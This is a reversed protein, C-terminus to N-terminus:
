DCQKITKCTPWLVDIATHETSGLNIVGCKSPSFPMLWQRSWTELRALDEQISKTNEINRPSSYVVKLDDAFLFCKGNKIEKRIDNIYLLFLLPGLVSGQVVGSTILTPKSYTNNVKVIQYRNHLFSSIWTLLPNDIGLYKLKQILRQHPVKDFAKCLDFYIIIVNHGTDRCTTIHNLFDYQCSWQQDTRRSGM